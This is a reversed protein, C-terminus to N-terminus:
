VVAISPILNSRQKKIFEAETAEESRDKICRTDITNRAIRGGISIQGWNISKTPFHLCTSLCLSVVIHGTDYLGTSLFSHLVATMEDVARLENLIM